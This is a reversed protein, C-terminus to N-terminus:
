QKYYLVGNISIKEKSVLKSSYDSIDVWVTDLRYSSMYKSTDKLSILQIIKKKENYRWSGESFFVSPGQGYYVFSSDKNLIIKSAGYAHQKQTEFTNDGMKFQKNLSCSCLLMVIFIYKMSNRYLGVLHKIRINIYLVEM